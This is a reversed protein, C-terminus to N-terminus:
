YRGCVLCGAHVAGGDWAALAVSSVGALRAAAFWFSPQTTIRRATESAISLIGTWSRASALQEEREGIVAGVM